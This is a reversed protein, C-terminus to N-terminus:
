KKETKKVLIIKMDIFDFTLSYKRFFGHSLIGGIKFGLMNEIVFQGSFFGRINKEVTDGLALEDVVFPIAKLTGGGGMVSIAKEEDLEIGAKEITSKAGTFGGGALGTDVFLLVPESQNLSGWAVMFHDGAMWFPNEIPKLEKIEQEFARLNEESKIRFILEGNIYDMTTIFHYFLVTGIIGDIRLGGFIQSFARTPLITVPVHSIKLGDFGISDIKSFTVEAKKGGAFTGMDSGFIELGIENAYEKDIIIEAAGTDILLNVTENSNIKVQIVPLPDTKIMKISTIEQTCEITYPKNDKFSWFRESKKEKGLKQYFTAADQFRDQRYFLEALLQKPEVEEMRLENALTLYEEAETFNNCFLNIKGLLILAQYNYPDGQICEMLVKKAEDFKGSEFLLSAYDSPEPKNASLDSM